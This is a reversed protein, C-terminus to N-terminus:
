RNDRGERRNRNRRDERNREDREGNEGTENERQRRFKKVPIRIPELSTKSRRALFIKCNRMVITNKHKCTSQFCAHAHLFYMLESADIPLGANNWSRENSEM